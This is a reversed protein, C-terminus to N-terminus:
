LSYQAIHLLMDDASADPAQTSSWVDFYRQAFGRADFKEQEALAPLSTFLTLLLSLFIKMLTEVEFNLM